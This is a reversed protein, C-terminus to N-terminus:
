KLASVQYIIETMQDPSEKGGNAIWRSIVAELSAIYAALAYEKPIGFFLTIQKEIKPNLHLISAIFHHISDSFKVYPTQALVSIFEFDDYIDWLIDHIVAKSLQDTEETLIDYIHGLTDEKLKDMLDYKDLYHLYFTGRNIRAQRCIATVSVEEFPSQKLLQTLAGKIKQKTQTQRSTVM